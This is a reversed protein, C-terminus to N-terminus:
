PRQTVYVVRQKRTGFLSRLLWVLFWVMLGVIVLPVLLVIEPFVVREGKISAASSAHIRGGMVVPDHVEANDGIDLTGGFLVVDNATGNVRVDGFFVVTDGARGDVEVSCFFCVLDGATDDQGVRIDSGFRVHDNDGSHAFAAGCCLVSMLLALIVRRV